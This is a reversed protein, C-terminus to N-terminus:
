LEFDKSFKSWPYSILASNAFRHDFTVDQGAWEPIDFKTKESDLEIEALVLGLNIGEFVDITWEFGKYDLAYRTKEIPPDLALQTIMM